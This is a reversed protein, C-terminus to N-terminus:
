SMPTESFKSKEGGGKVGGLATPLQSFGSGYMTYHESPLFTGYGSGYGASGFFYRGTDGWNPSAQASYLPSNMEQMLAMTPVQKFHQVYGGAEVIARM